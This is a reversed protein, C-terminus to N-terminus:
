IKGSKTKIIDCIYDIEGKDLEAFVPLSLVGKASEECVELKDEVLDMKEYVPQRHVPVPYHVGCGVGKQSLEKQLSDRGRLVRIVFLNYVHRAYDKEVPMIIDSIGKLRDKYVESNKRRASNWQDLRKLKVNLVAAQIGDLRYNYGRAVHTYKGQRGHDRLLCAREYVERNNTVIMGGDGYCGLNKGPYFSFCGADGLAGVRKDKYLAGHSQCADEIVKINNQEAIELLADMDVPHGFLHVPMIAKTKKTIAGEIKKIDMNYTDAEIDVFVPRAGAQLISEVTAIFTFPTTIVEDGPGIGMCVMSLHLAATGSSVGVAYKARCYDAFAKEFSAVESGLIFATSDIVKQINANVEERIGAYQKKLDVLPIKM